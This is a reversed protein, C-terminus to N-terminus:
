PNLVFMRRSSGEIGAKYQLSQLQIGDTIGWNSFEGDNAADVFAARLKITWLTDDVYPVGDYQALARRGVRNILEVLDEMYGAKLMIPGIALEWRRRPRGYGVATASAHADTEARAREEHSSRRPRRRVRGRRARGVCGYLV